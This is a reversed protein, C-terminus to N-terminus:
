IVVEFVRQDKQSLRREEERRQRERQGYRRSLEGMQGLELTLSTVKLGHSEFAKQVESLHAELVRRTGETYVTIHTSLGEAEKKVEVKVGGLVLPKLQVEVRGVGKELELRVREVIEGVMEHFQAGKGQSMLLAKRELGSFVARDKEGAGQLLLSWLGGDLGKGEKSGEQKRSISVAALLERAARESFIQSQGSTAGRNEGEQRGQIPASPTPTAGVTKDTLPKGQPELREGRVSAFVTTRPIVAKGGEKQGTVLVSTVDGKGDVSGLIRDGEPSPGGDRGRGTWGLRELFDHFYAVVKQVFRVTEPIAPIGGSALVRQPGCNYAALAVLPNGFKELLKKLYRIGAELNQYPDFPDKVGLEEATQPMLQMLGMAGKPSLALPNFGSEAKVVALVLAPHIGYRYSLDCILDFFPIRKAGEPCLIEGLFGSFGTAEPSKGRSAEGTEILFTGIGQVGFM